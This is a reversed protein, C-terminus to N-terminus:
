EEGKIKLIAKAIDGDSEVIAKEATARDCEAQEMVMKVDDENLNQETKENGSIQYSEPRM